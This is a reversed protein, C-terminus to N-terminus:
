RAGLAVPIARVALVIIAALLYCRLSRILGAVRVLVATRHGPSGLPCYEHGLEPTWCM